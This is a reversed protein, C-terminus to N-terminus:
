LRVHICTACHWTDLDLLKCFVTNGSIKVLLFKEGIEGGTSDDAFIKDMESERVCVCACMCVVCIM